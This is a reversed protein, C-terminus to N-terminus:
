SKLNNIDKEILGIIGNIDAKLLTTMGVSTLSAHLSRRLAELAEIKEGMNYREETVITNRYYNASPSIDSIPGTDIILQTYQRIKEKYINSYDIQAKKIDLSSKDISLSSAERAQAEWYIIKALFEGINTGKYGKMDRVLHRFTEMFQVHHMEKKFESDKLAISIREAERENSENKHKLSEAERRTDATRTNNNWITQRALQQYEPKAARIKSEAEKIKEWAAAVWANEGTPVIPVGSIQNRIYELLQNMRKAANEKMQTTYVFKKDTNQLPYPLVGIGYKDQTLLNIKEMFGTKEEVPPETFMRRFGAKIGKWIGIKGGMPKDKVSNFRSFMEDNRGSKLTPKAYYDFNKQMDTLFRETDTLIDREYDSGLIDKMETHPIAKTEDSLAVGRGIMADYRATEAAVEAELRQITKENEISYDVMSVIEELKDIVYEHRFAKFEFFDSRANRMAELVVPPHGASNIGLCSDLRGEALYQKFLKLTPTVHEYIRYWEEASKIMWPENQKLGEYKTANRNFWADFARDTKIRSPTASDFTILDGAKLYPAEPEPTPEAPTADKGGEKKGPATDLGRNKCVAVFKEVAPTLVSLDGEEIGDKKLYLQARALSYRIAEKLKKDALEGELAELSETATGLALLVGAIEEDRNTDKKVGFLNKFAADVKTLETILSAAKETEATAPARHKKSRGTLIARKMASTELAGCEEFLGKFPLTRLEEEFETLSRIAACFQSLSKKFTQHVKDLSDFNFESRNILREIDQIYAALAALEAVAPRSTKTNSVYEILAFATKKHTDIAAAEASILSLLAKEEESLSEPKAPKPLDIKDVTKTEKKFTDDEEKKNAPRIGARKLANNINQASQLLKNRNPLSLTSEEQKLVTLLNKLAPCFYKGYWRRVDPNLLLDKSDRWTEEIQRTADNVAGLSVTGLDKRARVTDNILNVLHDLNEATHYYGNKIADLFHATDGAKRKEAETLHKIGAGDFMESFTNLVAVLPSLDTNRESAHTVVARLRNIDERYEHAVWRGVESDNLHPRLDERIKELKQVEVQVDKETIRNAELTRTLNLLASVMLSENSKLFERAAKATPDKNEKSKDKEVGKERAPKAEGRGMKKPDVLSRLTEEVERLRNKFWNRADRHTQVNTNQPFNALTEELNKKMSELTAIKEKQIDASDGVVLANKKLEAVPFETELEANTPVGIHKVAEVLADQADGVRLLGQKFFSVIPSRVAGKITKDSLLEKERDVLRIGLQKAAAMRTRLRGTVIGVGKSKPMKDDDVHFDSKNDVVLATFLSDPFEAKLKNIFVSAGDEKIGLREGEDSKGGEKAPVGDPKEIREGKKKKKDRPNKVGEDKERDKEGATGEKSEDNAARRENETAAAEIKAVKRLRAGLTAVRDQIKKADAGDESLSAKLKAIEAILQKAVGEAKERKKDEPGDALVSIAEAFDAQAKALRNKLLDLEGQKKEVLNDLNTIAPADGEGTAELLGDLEAKMHELEEGRKGILGTLRTITKEAEEYKKEAAKKAAANLVEELGLLGEQPDKPAKEQNNQGNESGNEHTNM